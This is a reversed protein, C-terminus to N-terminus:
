TEKKDEEPFVMDYLSSVIMSGLIGIILHNIFKM